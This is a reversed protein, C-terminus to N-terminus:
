HPGDVWPNLSRREHCPPPYNGMRAGEKAAEVALYAVGAVGLGGPSFAADLLESPAGVARGLSRLPSHEGLLGGRGGRHSAEPIREGDPGYAGPARRRGGAAVPVMDDVAAVKGVSAMEIKLAKVRDLAGDISKDITGFATVAASAGKDAAGGIAVMQENMAKLAASTEPPMIISAMAEKVHRIVGDLQEFQAAIRELVASAEDVVTFRAGIAGAEIM